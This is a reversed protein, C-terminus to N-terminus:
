VCPGGAAAVTQVLEPSIALFRALNPIRRRIRRIRSDRVGIAEDSFAEGRTARNPPPSNGSPPPSRGLRNPRRTRDVLESEHRFAPLIEFARLGVVLAPDGIIGTGVFRGERSIAQLRESPLVRIPLM